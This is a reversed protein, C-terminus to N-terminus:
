HEVLDIPPAEVTYVATIDLDAKMPDGTWTITSGKQFDFRRNIMNFSLEYSGESVEYTGALSVNGGPDIGATLEASGKAYLADGTGPDIVVTFAAEPDVD